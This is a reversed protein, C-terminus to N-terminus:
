VQMLSRRLDALAKTFPSDLHPSPPPDFFQYETACTNGQDAVPILADLIGELAALSGTWGHSLTERHVSLEGLLYGVSHHDLDLDQRAPASAIPMPPNCTQPLRLSAQNLWHGILMRLHQRSCASKIEKQPALLSHWTLIKLRDLWRNEIVLFWGEHRYTVLGCVSCPFRKKILSDM